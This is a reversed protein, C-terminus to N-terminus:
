MGSVSRDISPHRDLGIPPAVLQRRGSAATVRCAYYNYDYITDGVWGMLHYCCRDFHMVHLSPIRAHVAFRVILRRRRRRHHHHSQLSHHHLARFCVTNCAIIITKLRLLLQLCVNNCRM